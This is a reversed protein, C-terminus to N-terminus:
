ELRKKLEEIESKLKKLEAMREPLRSLHAELIKFEKLERQPSGAYVTGAKLTGSVGAQAAITVRDPINIHGVIGAQGALVVYDGITTSGAIGVQSIIICGRGIKVNHAIQVLNDIKTGEGIVTEGLAARDVTCNAGIEVDDDIRVRGVQYVKHHVGKEPAYGFGDSGIVTGAHIAVNNGLITNDYITVNPYILCGKGFRCNRGIVAGTMIKCDNGILTGGGIEVFNGVHVNDGIATSPDVVASRSVGPRLLHGPPPFLAKLAQSFAFYPNSHVIFNLPFQTRPADVIVASAKTSALYQEYRSNALFTLDGPGATEITSTRSIEVDGDGVVAAGLKDALAQLKM